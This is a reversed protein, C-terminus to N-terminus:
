ASVEDTGPDDAQDGGDAGTALEGAGSGDCGLIPTSLEEAGDQDQDQEAGDPEDRDILERDFDDGLKADGVFVGARRVVLHPILEHRDGAVTLWVAYIGFRVSRFRFILRGSDPDPAVDPDARTLHRVTKGTVGVLSVEDDQRPDDDLDLEIPVLVDWLDPVLTNVPSGGIASLM